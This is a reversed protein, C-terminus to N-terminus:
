FKFCDATEKIAKYGVSFVGVALVRHPAGLMLQRMNKIPMENQWRTFATDAPHGILAVIASSGFTTGYEVMKNDGFHKKAMKTMPDNVAMAGVFSIERTVIAAWQKTTFGRLSQMVTKGMTQGNFVALAPASIAGVVASSFFAPAFSLKIDKKKLYREVYPEFKNQAFMQIGIVAGIKPAAKAGEKFSNKASMPLIDKELQRATKHVFWRYVPLIAMGASTVNRPVTYWLNEKPQENLAATPSISM